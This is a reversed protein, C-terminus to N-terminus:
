KICYDDKIGKMLNIFLVRYNYLQKKSMVKHNTGLWCNYLNIFDRVNREGNKVKISLKKLKRRQRYLKKKNIREVVRGSPTLYYYNQLFHFGKDIRQITTKKDNIIIELENAIKKIEKYYNKLLDKDNSIVYIDDQYRGYMAGKVITMYDDIRKPYLVGIVQSLQDGINLGRDMSNLIEKVIYKETDDDLYKELQSYAIAHNINDYYKSFDILLIYGKNGYKRFYKHLDEKLQKRQFDVGKDKRSAGNKYILDKEVKPMIEDCILHRVIKDKCNNGTINRTKGRENIVFYTKTGTKYAHNELENQIEEINSLYDFKFRQTTSKWNSTKVSNLYAQYIKNANTIDIFFYRKNITHYRLLM